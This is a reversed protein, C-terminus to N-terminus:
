RAPLQEITYSTTPTPMTTFRANVVYLREGFAAITTPVDLRPDTITDVVEAMILGADLQLAVVENLRNRVVYLTRGRLLLGDGNSVSAGGLAIETAHGSRPDVRYLRGLQSHVVILARGDATAEIGNANIVDPVFEFDGGLPLEEVAATAPVRGNPSLALRYLVPRRSETFYAAEGTVVVDNVFTTTEDTLQFTQVTAGTATDYVSAGGTPGGAVYLYGTRADFALGVAVRGEQGPVLIAGQGTRLDARYIAGNALSGAYITPGDGTAIGEPRFGDPLAMTAPFSGGAAAAAQHPAFRLGVALGGGALAAAGLAQRRTLRHRDSGTM